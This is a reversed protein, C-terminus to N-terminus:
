SRDWRQPQAELLDWQVWAFYTQWSSQMSCFKPSVTYFNWPYRAIQLQTYLNQFPPGILIHIGKLLLVSVPVNLIVKLIICAKSNGRFNNWKWCNCRSQSFNIVTLCLLCHCGVGTSKGPFDWPCLLRTPQLGHPWLSDFVVLRSWKWKESKHM